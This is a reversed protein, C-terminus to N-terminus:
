CIVRSAPTRQPVNRDDNSGCVDSRPYAGFKPGGLAFTCDNADYGLITAVRNLDLAPNSLDNVAHVGLVGRASMLCHPPLTDGAPWVILEFHFTIVIRLCAIISIQVGSTMAGCAWTAATTPRPNAATLSSTPLIAWIKSSPTVIVKLDFNQCLLSTVTDWPASHHSQIHRGGPAGNFRRTQTTPERLTRFFDHTM